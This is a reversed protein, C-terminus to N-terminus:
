PSMQQFVVEGSKVYGLEQRIVLELHAPNNLLGKKNGLGEIKKKQHEISKKLEKSLENAKHLHYLGQDGFISFWLFSLVAACIAIPLLHEKKIQKIRKIIM